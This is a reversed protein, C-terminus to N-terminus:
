LVARVKVAVEVSRVSMHRPIDTVEVGFDAPTVTKHERLQADRKLADLAWFLTFSMMLSILFETAGYAPSLKTANGISPALFLENQWSTRLAAGLGHGYVNSIMSSVSLLAFLRFQRSFHSLFRMYAFPAGGLHLFASVPPLGEKYPLGTEPNRPLQLEAHMAAAAVSPPRPEM